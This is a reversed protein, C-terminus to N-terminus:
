KDVLSEQNRDNERGKGKEERGKDYSTSSVRDLSRFYRLTFDLFNYNSTDITVEM